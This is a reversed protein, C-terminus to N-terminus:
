YGKRGNIVYRYWNFSRVKSQDKRFSSALSICSSFSIKCSWASVNWSVCKSLETYNGIMWINMVGKWSLLIFKNNNHNPFKYTNFFQEKFKEDLKHQHNKDCCLCKYEILDDKFSTYKLFCDCYKHIWM